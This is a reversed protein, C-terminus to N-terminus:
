ARVEANSPTPRPAPPLADAPLPDDGDRGLVARVWNILCGHPQGEDTLFRDSRILDDLRVLQAATVQPFLEVISARYEAALHFRTREKM